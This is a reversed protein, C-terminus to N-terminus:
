MKDLLDSLQQTLKKRTFNNFKDSNIFEEKNEFLSIISEKLNVDSYDHYIGSKTKEMLKQTDSEKPGFGLIPRKAAFYEFIKGPYNGIGSESNFLLLLLVSSENYERLVQKHSLYGLVKVKNKLHFYQTINQM